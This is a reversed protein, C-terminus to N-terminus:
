LAYFPHKHRNRSFIYATASEGTIKEIKKFTEAKENESLMNNKWSM